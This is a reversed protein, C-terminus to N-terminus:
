ESWRVSPKTSGWKPASSTIHLIQKRATFDYAGDNCGCSQTGCRGCLRALCSPYLDAFDSRFRNDNPRSPGFRSRSEGVTNDALAMSGCCFRGTRIFINIRKLASAWTRRTGSANAEFWNASASAAYRGIPDIQAAFGVKRMLEPQFSELGRSLVAECYFRTSSRVISGIFHEVTTEPSSRDCGIRRRYSKCEATAL